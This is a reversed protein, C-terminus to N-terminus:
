ILVDSSDLSSFDLTFANQLQTQNMYFTKTGNEMDIDESLCRYAQSTIQLQSDTYLLIDGITGTIGPLPATVGFNGLINKNTLIIRQALNQASVSDVLWVATEMSNDQHLGYSGISTSSIANITYAFSKSNVNYGAGVYYQNILSRNDLTVITDIVNANTLSGVPTNSIGFRGFKIKNNEVWISSQTLNSIKQLIEVAKQGTFSASVRTNDASFLSSWSGFSTYDIDPNNTSTLASLGGLSTCAYWAMDHVMYSSGTYSLPTTADGIVRNALGVFKDIFTLSVKSASFQAADITGAFVTIFETSGVAYQFGMNIQCASQLNNPNTLLVNLNGDDNALDITVTSPNINNWTRSVVPWGLVRSSYDSTGMLLQRQWPANNQLAQATFGSSVAYSM